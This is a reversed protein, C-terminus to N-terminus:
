SRSNAAARKKEYARRIVEAGNFPAPPGGQGQGNSQAPTPAARRPAAPAAAEKKPPEDVSVYESYDKEKALELARDLPTMVRTGGKGDGVIREVMTGDTNRGLVVTKFRGEGMVKDDEVVEMEAALIPKMMKTIGTKRFGASVLAAEAVVEKRLRRVEDLRAASREREVKLEEGHVRKLEAREREDLGKGGKKLAAVEETLEAVKTVAASAEEPTITGYKALKHSKQRESQLGNILGQTDALEYGDVKEVDLLFVAAGGEVELKKYLARQAEPVDELKSIKAKLM